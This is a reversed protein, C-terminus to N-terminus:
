GRVRKGERRRARAVWIGIGLLVVLVSASSPPSFGFHVGMYVTHLTALLTAFIGLRHLKKWNGRLTRVAWDSSTLALLTLGLLAALGVFVSAQRDPTLFTFGLPTNGLIHKYAYGTHLVSLGFALLGLARRVKLLRLPRALLILLLLGFAANGHYEALRQGLLHSGSHYHGRAWLELALVLGLGLVYTALPSFSFKPAASSRPATKM